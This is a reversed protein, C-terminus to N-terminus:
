FIEGIFIQSPDLHNIVQLGCFALEGEKDKKKMTEIASYRSILYGDHKKRIQVLQNLYKNMLPTHEMDRSLCTYGLSLMWEWNSYHGM